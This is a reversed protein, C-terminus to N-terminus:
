LGYARRLAAIVDADGLYTRGRLRLLPVSGDSRAALLERMAVPDRDVERVVVRQSLGSSTLFDRVARCHSCSTTVYVVPLDLSPLLGGHNPVPIGGDIRTAIALLDPVSRKGFRGASVSYRVVGAKDVIVTCREAVGDGALCGYANAVAGHPFFDSLLRISSAGCQNAWALNSATNDVTVAVPLTHAEAAFRGAYASLAPLETTCIPTFAAPLFLLLVNSRGREESLRFTRGYQDSLSFDPASLGVSIMRRHYGM